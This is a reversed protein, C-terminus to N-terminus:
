RLNRGPGRWLVMGHQLGDTRRRESRGEEGPAAVEWGRGVGDPQVIGRRVDRRAAREGGDTIDQRTYDLVHDAGLARVLELKATSAKHGIARQVDRLLIGMAAKRAGDPRALRAAPSAPRLGSDLLMLVATANIIKYNNWCAPAAFCRQAALGVSASEWTRLYERPGHGWRRWARTLRRESLASSRTPRTESRFSASSSGTSARRARAWSSAARWDRSHKRACRAKPSWLCCNSRIFSARSLGCVPVPAALSFAAALVPGVIGRRM